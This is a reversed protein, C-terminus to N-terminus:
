PNAALQEQGLKFVRGEYRKEISRDSAIQVRVEESFSISVVREAVPIVPRRSDQLVVLLQEPLRVGHSRYLQELGDAKVSIASVEGARASRSEDGSFAM